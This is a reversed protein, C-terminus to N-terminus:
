SQLQLLRRIYLYSLLLSTSCIFISSAPTWKTRAAEPSRRNTLLLEAAGMTHWKSELPSALRVQNSRFLISFLDKTRFFLTQPKLVRHRRHSSSSVPPCSSPCRKDATYRGADWRRRSSHSTLVWVYNLVETFTKILMFINCCFACFVSFIYKQVSSVVWPAGAQPNERM